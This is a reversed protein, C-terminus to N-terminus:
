KKKSKHGGPVCGEKRSIGQQRSGGIVYGKGSPCKPNDFVVKEGPNVTGNAPRSQAFAATSMMLASIALVSFTLKTM